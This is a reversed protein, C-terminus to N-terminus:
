TKLNSQTGSLFSAQQSGNSTTFSSSSARSMSTSPLKRRFNDQNDIQKGNSTGSSGISETSSSGRQRDISGFGDNNSAAIGIVGNNADDGVGNGGQSVGNERDFYISPQPSNGRQRDIPSRGGHQGNGIAAGGPHSSQPDNNNQYETAAAAAAAEAAAQAEAAGAANGNADVPINSPNVDSSPTINENGITAQTAGDFGGYTQPIVGFHPLYAAQPYGSFQDYILPYSNYAFPALNVPTKGNGTSLPILSPPFGFENLPIPQKDTSGIGHIVARDDKSSGSASRSSGTSAAATATATAAAVGIGGNVTKDANYKPVFTASEFPNFGFPDYYGYPTYGYSGYIFPSDHITPQIVPYARSPTLNQDTTILANYVKPTRLLAASECEISIAIM